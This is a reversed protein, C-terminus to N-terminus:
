AVRSEIEQVKDLVRALQCECGVVVDDVTLCGDLGLLIRQSLAAVSQVFDAAREEEFAQLM